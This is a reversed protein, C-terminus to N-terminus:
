HYERDFVIVTYYNIEENALKKDIEAKITENDLKCEYPVVTDFILNTHTEGYVIRFDHITLSGDIESIIKEVLAKANNTMKDDTLVPDMHITMIIGMERMIKREIEDVIDHVVMFDENASVEVHCSGIMNGPGYNHIVLDHIGIIKEDETVYSKIEEVIEPDAPKGLLEDVTDKLIEYGAKLIFVSVIIGMIGDIPLDTFVSAVLAILSAATAIVDSRSDKATAIMVTSNIKKGLKMNFFSMWLKVGISFILALLAAISFTVEEPTIIKKVSSELLEIGVLVVIVAIILSTLYEIRGHGFPHDKDAPKSALKYGFLTVLCSACDSLNNFADSIISISNALTGILYKLGFLILNCIIGVISSLTGYKQRVVPNNIENSNKVFLKVLIDTMIERRMNFIM